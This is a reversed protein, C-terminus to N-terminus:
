APAPQPAQAAVKRHALRKLGYAIGLGVVLVAISVIPRYWLWAIAIVVPAVVATLALSVV